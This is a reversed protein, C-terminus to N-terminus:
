TTPIHGQELICRSEAAWVSWQSHGGGIVIFSSLHVWQGWVHCLGGQIDHVV